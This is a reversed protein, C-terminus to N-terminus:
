SLYQAAEDSRKYKVIDSGDFWVNIERNANEVSDSAHILNKVARKEGDALSYSDSSFRGRISGPDAKRPETAGTLKRVIFVADNGEVVMAAVPGSSLYDILQMWVRRGIEVPDESNDIGQDKYTSKTKTGIERMWNEDPVYHKEALARDPMAMKTAVIKLGTDEIVSIIKGIISRYVGDPKILVLTREIM